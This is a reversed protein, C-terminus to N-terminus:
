ASASGAQCPLRVPRWHLLPLPLHLPPANAAGVAEKYSPANEAPGATLGQRIHTLFANCPMLGDDRIQATCKACAKLANLIGTPATPGARGTAMCAPCFARPAFLPHPM